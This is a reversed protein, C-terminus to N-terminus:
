GRRRQDNVTPEPSCISQGTSHSQRECKQIRPEGNTDM